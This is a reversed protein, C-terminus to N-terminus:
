YERLYVRVAALVADLQEVFVRHGANAIAVVDAEMFLPAHYTRQFDAGLTSCETGILLVKRPFQDLGAAFDYDFGGTQGIDLLAGRVLDVHAGPRWV